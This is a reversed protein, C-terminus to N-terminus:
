GALLRQRYLRQLRAARFRHRDGQATLVVGQHQVHRQVAPTREDPNLVRSAEFPFTREFRTSDRTSSGYHIGECSSDGAPRVSGFAVQNRRRRVIHLEVRGEPFEPGHNPGNGARTSAKKRLVGDAPM